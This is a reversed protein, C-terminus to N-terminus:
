LVTFIDIPLRSSSQFSAFVASMQCLGSPFSAQEIDATFEMTGETPYTDGDTPYTSSAGNLGTFTEKGLSMGEGTTAPRHLFYDRDKQIYDGSGLIFEVPQRNQSTDFHNSDQNM